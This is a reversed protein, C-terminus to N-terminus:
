GAHDRTRGCSAMQYGEQIDGQKGDQGRHGPYSTRAQSAGPRKKADARDADGETDPRARRVRPDAIHVRPEIIRIRIHVRPEIIRIRIHVRPEVGNLDIDALQSRQDDVGELAGLRGVSTADFM